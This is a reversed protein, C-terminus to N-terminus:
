RVVLEERDPGTSVMSVRTGLKEELFQVYDICAKPLNAEKKVSTLNSNWGPVDTYVAEYNEHVLDFPLEHSLSGDVKYADAVKLTEFKNLVDVKTVVLQTVGSLMITYRLQVLDIWGCRRPRGTTAGFEGGEARLFEGTEGTLETPFPGGGVRTCYAKTIGIVEGIQQPAIGLGTCVGATITNSSTVFPYTGFDIDLMSGQAGEALVRLVQDREEFSVNFMKEHTALQVDDMPPTSREIDRLRSRLHRANKQLWKAYHQRHKLLDSIDQPLLL